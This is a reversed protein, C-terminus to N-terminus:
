RLLEPRPKKIWAEADARLQLALAFGRAVEVESVSGSLEYASQNRKKRFADLRPILKREPDITFELAEITRYHESGGRAARFGAAALVATASAMIANHVLYLRSDTSLAKAKNYDAIKTDAM